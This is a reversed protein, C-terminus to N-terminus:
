RANRKITFHRVRENQGLTRVVAKFVFRDGPRGKPSLFFHKSASGGLSLKENIPMSALLTWPQTPLDKIFRTGRPRTVRLEEVVLKADQRNEAYFDGSGFDSNPHCSVELSFLPDTASLERKERRWTIWLSLCAITLAGLSTLLTFWDKAEM